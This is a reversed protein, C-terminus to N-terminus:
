YYYFKFINVDCFLYMFKLIKKWLNEYKSIMTLYSLKVSESDINDVIDKEFTCLWVIILNSIEWKIVLMNSLYTSIYVFHM